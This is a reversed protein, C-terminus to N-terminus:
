RRCVDVRGRPRRGNGRLDQTAYRRWNTATGRLRGANRLYEVPSAVDGTIEVSSDSALRRVRSGPRRGVIRFIANPVAARIQPWMERCFYEVGDINAEWDMSGLFMVIPDPADMGAVFSYESVDVGTPAITIRSRDTMAAMLERDHESVAIIHHFRRLTTREYEFMKRAEVSFVAKKILNRQHAAQRRWLASEM